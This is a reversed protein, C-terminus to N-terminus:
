PANDQLLINIEELTKSRSSNRDEITDLVDLYKRKTFVQTSHAHNSMQLSKNAPGPRERTSSQPDFGNQHSM